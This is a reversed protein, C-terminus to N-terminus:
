LNGEIDVSGETQKRKIELPNEEAAFVSPFSSRNMIQGRNRFEEIESNLMLIEHEKQMIESQLINNESELQIIKEEM